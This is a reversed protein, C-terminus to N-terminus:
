ACGEIYGVPEALGSRYRLVRAGDTEFVLSRSPDDPVYRLNHGGQDYPHPEVVIREGYTALVAAETSGIGIGSVTLVPSEQDVDVRGITRDVVMFTVNPQGSGPSAYFCAGPDSGVGSGAVEAVPQGAAASAEELSTGVRVPGIGELSVRDEPGLADPAVTTTPATSTTSGTTPPPSSPPVSPDPMTTTTEPPGGVADLTRDDARLADGVLVGAGVLLVLLVAAVTGWLWAPRGAGAAVRGGEPAVERSTRVDPVM